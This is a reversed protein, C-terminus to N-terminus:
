FQEHWLPKNWKRNQMCYRFSSNQAQATEQDFINMIELMFDRRSFVQPRIVDFKEKSIHDTNNLDASIGLQQCGDDNLGALYWSEIERCVILIRDATLNKYMSTIQAKRATVCPSEDMDAVFIYDANMEKISELFSEVKNKTKQSYEWCQVYDYNQEYMPTLVRSFFREDDNGEVFIVLRQYAM